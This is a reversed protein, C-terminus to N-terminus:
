NKTLTFTATLVFQSTMSQKTVTGELTMTTNTDKTGSIAIVNQSFSSGGVSQDVSTIDLDSADESYNFVDEIHYSEVSIDFSGKGGDFYFAGADAKTGSEVSQSPNSLNQDIINYEVSTINWKEGTHNIKNATEEEECAISALVIVLVPLIRIATKM